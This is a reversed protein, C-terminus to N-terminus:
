RSKPENKEPMLRDQVAEAQDNETYPVVGLDVLLQKQDEHGRNTKGRIQDAAHSAAAFGMQNKLKDQWTPTNDDSTVVSVQKGGRGYSHKLDKV